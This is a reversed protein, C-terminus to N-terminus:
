SLLHKSWGPLLRVLDSGADTVYRCTEVCDLYEDVGLWCSSWMKMKHQEIEYIKKWFITYVIVSIHLEKYCFLGSVNTTTKVSVFIKDRFAATWNIM